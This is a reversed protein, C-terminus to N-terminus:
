EEEDKDEGDDDMNSCDQCEDEKSGDNEKAEDIECWWGCTGCRFIQNGIIDHDSSTLEMEDMDPYHDDLAEQLTNCTGNLADVIVQPDFYDPRM